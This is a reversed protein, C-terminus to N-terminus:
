NQYVPYVITYPSASGFCQLTKTYDVAAPPAAGATGGAFNTNVQSCVTQSTTTALVVSDAATGGWGSYTAADWTIATVGSPPEPVADLAFSGVLTTAGGTLGTAQAGNNQASFIVASHGVEILSKGIRDATGIGFWSPINKVLAPKAIAIIIIMITIVVVIEVLTFGRNNGIPSRRKRLKKVM